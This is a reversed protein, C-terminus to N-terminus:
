NRFAGKLVRLNDPYFLLIFPVPFDGGRGWGYERSEADGGSERYDTCDNAVEEETLSVLPDADEKVLVSGPRGRYGAEVGGGDEGAGEAIEHEGQKPQERPHNDTLPM